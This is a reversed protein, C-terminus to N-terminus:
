ALPDKGEDSVAEHLALEVSVILIFSYYGSSFIIAYHTANQSHGRRDKDRIETPDNM